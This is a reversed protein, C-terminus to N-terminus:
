KDSFLGKIKDIAGGAKMGLSTGVGPGLIATGMVAGALAAKSPLVVPNNLTGSVQLPISVLSASRKVKVEVVGDLKKNRSVKLEGNAALIGSSLKLERLHYQKAANEMRVNLLGSFEDFETEGGRQGQKLLLNAARVLDLGHLVGKNVQFRFDAHLNNFLQGADKTNASFNGNGFLSGSLYTSKSVLSSPEKVSLSEVKIHGNFRWNKNWSLDANGTVQGRYIGINIKPINLHNGKLHMEIAARDILLPLGVPLTFKQATALIFYEDGKPAVEVKLTGDISKLTVSELKNNGTLNAEVNVMPLKTGGWDLKMDNISIRKISVASAESSESKKAFLTSLLDLASKKIIPKSIKIEISKVASFMSSLTPIVVLQDLNIEQDKGITINGAIVRPSPLFSLHGTGITVPVGLEDSAMSEAEHLYTQMPILFPLFILLSVVAAMGILIKKTKKM